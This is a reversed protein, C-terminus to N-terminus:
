RVDESLYRLSVDARSALAWMVLAACAAILAIEVSGSPVRVIATIAGTALAAALWGYVRSRSLHRAVLVAATATIALACQAALDIVAEASPRGSIRNAFIVVPFGSLVVITLAGAMAVARAMLMRSPRLGLLAGFIVLDDGREAAACRAAIWPLLVTLLITAVIRFRDSANADGWGLAFLTLVAVYAVTGARFARCRSIAAMERGMLAIIV